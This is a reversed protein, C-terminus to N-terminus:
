SFNHGAMDLLELKLPGDQRITMGSIELKVNVAQGRRELMAYLMRYGYRPKQRAV